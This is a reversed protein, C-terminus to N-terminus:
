DRGNARMEISLQDADLTDLAASLANADFLGDDRADLLAKRRAEISALRVEVGMHGSPDTPLDAREVADRMLEVLAAREQDRSEKDPGGTPRILRVFTRLTGGQVLLSFGAVLFAVLVLFSRHPTEPPLTQAAAVTIAGRMGAWVVVGGDRWTLPAALYYDLDALSRRVRTRFRELRAPPSTAHDGGVRRPGRQPASISGNM